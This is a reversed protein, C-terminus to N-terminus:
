NINKEYWNYYFANNDFIFSCLSMFFKLLPLKRPHYFSRFELEIITQYRIYTCLIYIGALEM